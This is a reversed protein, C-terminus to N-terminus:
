AATQDVLSPGPTAILTELLTSADILVELQPMKCDIVVLQLPDWAKAGKLSRAESDTCHLLRVSSQTNLM